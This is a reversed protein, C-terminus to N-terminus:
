SLSFFYDDMRAVLDKSIKDIENFDIADIYFDELEDHLAKAEALYKIGIDVASKYRSIISDLESKYEDDTGPKIASYYIDIIEDSERTPFYEHPATSDFVAVGLERIIIMDLSNPDFGCHYVEIDFGREEAAKAIKKLMTSKGSGPRGKIFYRKDVDKTLDMVFDVPGNPTAGGLFRNKLISQKEAQSGEFIKDIISDTIENLKGFNINDLYVKEWEDHIKLGAKFQDYANVYCTSIKNKISLITDKHVALKKSDWAVGLNVYEEIAGPATPEIIHPATGDVVGIGLLPIIVGDISNNDSACHIYEVDFGRSYWLKGIGKMLTSKGTGPGGKLIYVKDLQKINEESFSVFGLASNACTYYNLIKASL